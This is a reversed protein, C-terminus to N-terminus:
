SIMEASSCHCASMRTGASGVFRGFNPVMMSAIARWQSPGSSSSMASAWSTPSSPRVSVGVPAARKGRSRDMRNGSPSVSAATGGADSSPGAALVLDGEVCPSGSMGWELIKAKGKVAGTVVTDAAWIVAGTALDLCQLRGMAGLAYCRDGEITPTARPGEGALESAYRATVHQEWLLEGSFLDYCTVCEEAGRQEQTVARRGAVAFASWAIGVAHRWLLEPPERQWDRALVPGALRAQREPGLFQPYDAAGPLSGASGGRFNEASRTDGGAEDVAMRFNAEPRRDGRAPAGFRGAGGGGGPGGAAHARANAVEVALVSSVLGAIGRCPVGAHDMDAVDPGATINTPGVLHHLAVGSRGLGDARAVVLASPPCRASRCASQHRVVTHLGPRKRGRRAAECAAFM